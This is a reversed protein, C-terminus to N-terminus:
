GLPHDAGSSLPSIPLGAVCPDVWAVFPPSDLYVEMEEGSTFYGGEPHIAKSYGTIPFCDSSKRRPIVPGSLKWIAFGDLVLQLALGLTM